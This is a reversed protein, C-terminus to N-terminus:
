QEGADAGPDNAAPHMVGTYLVSMDYDQGLIGSPGIPRWQNIVVNRREMDTIYEEPFANARVLDRREADSRRRYTAIAAADNLVPRLEYARVDIAAVGEAPSLGVIDMATFPIASEFVAQDQTAISNGFGRIYRVLDIPRELKAPNAGTSYIDRSGVVVGGDDFLTVRYGYSWAAGAEWESPEILPTSLVRALTVPQSFVFRTARREDLRYVLARSRLHMGEPGVAGAGATGTTQPSLSWAALAAATAVLSLCIARLLSSLTM